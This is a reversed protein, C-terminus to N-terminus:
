FDKIDGNFHHINRLYEVLNQETIGQYLKRLGDFFNQANLKHNIQNAAWFQDRMRVSDNVLKLTMINVLGTFKISIM